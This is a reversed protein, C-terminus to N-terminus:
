IANAQIFKEASIKTRASFTYEDQDDIVIEAIAGAHDFKSKIQYTIGFAEIKPQLKQIDGDTWLTVSKGQEEYWKLTAFVKLNLTEDVLLTGEIDCYVGSLRVGKMVEERSDSVSKLFEIIVVPEEGALSPFYEKVKEMISQFKTNGYAEPSDWSPVYKLDHFIHSLYKKAEDSVTYVPTPVDKATRFVNGFAEPTFPMEIFRANEHKLVVDIEPKRKRIYEMPLVGYLVVKAKPERRLIELAITVGHCNQLHNGGIKNENCIIHAGRFDEAHPLTDIKEKFENLWTISGERDYILFQMSESVKTEM